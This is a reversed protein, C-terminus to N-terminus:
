LSEVGGAVGATYPAPCAATEPTIDDDGAVFADIERERWRLCKGLRVPEPLGLQKGKTRV